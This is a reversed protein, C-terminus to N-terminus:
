YYAYKITTKEYDTDARLSDIVELTSEIRPCYFAKFDEWKYYPGGSIPLRAERENWLVSVLIDPSRRSRFFVLQLSGGMPMDWPHFVEMAEDPGPATAGRGDLDMYVVLPLISSDHSFRLRLQVEGSAIDEDAKDIMDKLTYATFDPFLSGSGEVRGLFLMIRYWAAKTVALRDELTFLGKFPDEPYDLCGLGNSIDFLNRIFVVENTGKCSLAASPDTFIRSLIGDMDVTRSFYEEYPATIEDMTRPRKVELPSFNPRLVPSNSESAFEDVRLDPDLEQLANDFSTMSMAVRGVPTSIASLRTPGDFIAPFRRYLRAAITRQQSIGMASLEGERYIAHQFFRGYDQQLRRGRETLNGEKLASDLAKRIMRYQEKMAYRAGHRGYNSVYFPKYGRPAPTLVPDELYDYVYMLGASKSPDDIIQQIAPRADESPRIEKGSPSSCGVAFAIVPLVFLLPIRLFKM